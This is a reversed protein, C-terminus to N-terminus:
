GVWRAPLSVGQPLHSVALRLLGSALPAVPRSRWRGQSSSSPRQCRSGLRGQSLVAAPLCGVGRLRPQLKAQPPYMISPTPWRASIPFCDTAPVCRAWSQLLMCSYPWGRFCGSCPGVCFRFCHEGQSSPSAAPRHLTAAAALPPCQVTHQLQLRNIHSAPLLRSCLLPPTFLPSRPLPPSLNLICIMRGQHPPRHPM